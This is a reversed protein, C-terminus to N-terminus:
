ATQAAIKEVYKTMAECIPIFLELSNFMKQMVESKYIKTLTLIEEASFHKAFNVAFPKLFITSRFYSKLHDKDITSFDKGLIAGRKIETQILSELSKDNFYMAEILKIAMDIIDM